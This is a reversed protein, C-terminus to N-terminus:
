HIQSKADHKWAPAKHETDLKDAKDRLDAAKTSYFLDKTHYQMMKAMQAGSEACQADHLLKDVKTDIPKMDAM